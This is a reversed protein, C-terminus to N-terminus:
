GIGSKLNADLTRASSEGYLKTNVNKRLDSIYSENKKMIISANYPKIEIFSMYCIRKELKSLKHQMMLLCFSPLYKNFKRDLEKWEEGTPTGKTKGEAYKKFKDVIDLDRLESLAAANNRPKIQQMLQSNSDKLKKIKTEKESMHKEYQRSKSELKKEGSKIIKDKNRLSKIFWYYVFLFIIILIILIIISTIFNILLDKSKIQEEYMQKQINNYDYMAKVNMMANQYQSNVFATFSEEYEKAISIISDAQKRKEYIRLLAHTADFEYGCVSLRRFFYEASDLDNIGEYYIGKANYYHERQRVINGEEDFLGSEHEFIDMLRKAETYERRALHIYIAAPYISAAAQPMDNEMYLTHVSDIISLIAATDDVLQYGGVQLEIGRIYEYTNGCKAAYKSYWRYCEIEEMPMLQHHYVYAMQGYIRMLTLYDCDTALTDACDTASLYWEIARPAEHQDRCICGMIYRARMQENSTGHRDYYDVVAHQFLSDFAMPRDTKNMATGLLLYYRASEARSLNSVTVSDINNLLTYASDPCSEMISYARELLATVDSKTGTCAALVAIMLIPIILKHM